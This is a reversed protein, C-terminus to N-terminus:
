APETRDEIEWAHDLAHWAIRRAAYRPPWRRGAIPSGDSVQRLVDLMAARRAAVDVIKIGMANAYGGDADNVHAVIKTRDRGGGRPGKRLAEPAAAATRDFVAWSGEVIAALRAAEGADVPRRDEDGIAGPVGFATSADGAEREVAEVEIDNARFDLGAEGAAIAYRPAAALFAELALEETKGSRSWGPWDLASVFVRKDISEVTVRVRNAM